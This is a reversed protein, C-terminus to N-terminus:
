KKPPMGSCQGLGADQRQSRLLPLVQSTPDASLVSACGVSSRGRDPQSRRPSSYRRTPSTASLRRGRQRGCWRNRRSHGSRRFRGPPALFGARLQPHGSSMSRSSSRRQGGVASASGEGRGRRAISPAPRRTGDRQYRPQNGSSHRVRSDPRRGQNSRPMDGRGRYNTELMSKIPFPALPGSRECRSPPDLGAFEVQGLELACDNQGGNV